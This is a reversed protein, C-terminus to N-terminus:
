KMSAAKKMADKYTFNKNNKKEDNYVKKVFQIWTNNKRTKKGGRSKSKKVVSRRLPKRLNSKYASMNRLSSSIDPKVRHSSENYIPNEEKKEMFKTAKKVLDELPKTSKHSELIQRLIDKQYNPTYDYYTVGDKEFHRLQNLKTEISMGIVSFDTSNFFDIVFNNVSKKTRSM